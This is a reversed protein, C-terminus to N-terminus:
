HMPTTPPSPPSGAREIVHERLSTALSGWWRGMESLFVSVAHGHRAPHDARIKSWGRHTVTVRTGSRTPEFRVEVETREEPAFNVARWEILLRSPPEWALVTGTRRTLPKGGSTDFSEYLAGGVHPELHLVSRGRGLRYALGRRWWRDIEETFVTFATSVDAEVVVMVTVSDGESM